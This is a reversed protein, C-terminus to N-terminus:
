ENSAFLLAARVVVIEAPPRCNVNCCAPPQVYVSLAVLAVNVAAATDCALTFTVADPVSQGHVADLLAAHNVIM